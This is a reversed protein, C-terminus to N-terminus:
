AEKAQKLVTAVVRKMQTRYDETDAAKLLLGKSAMSLVFVIDQEAGQGPTAGSSVLHDGLAGYIEAFPDESSQVHSQTALDMVETGHPSARLLPTMEGLWKVFFETVQDELSRTGDRLAAVARAECEASAGAVAWDLVAQKNAFRNYLTQRSIGAAEALEAMSTKRFGYAGFVGLVRAYDSTWDM